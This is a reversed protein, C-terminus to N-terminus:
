PKMKKEKKRKNKAKKKQKSPPLFSVVNEILLVYIRVLSYFTLPLCSPYNRFVLNEILLFNFPCPLFLFPITQYHSTV